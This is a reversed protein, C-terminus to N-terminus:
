TEDDFIEKGFFCTLLLELDNNDTYEFEIKKVRGKESIHVPRGIRNRIKKELAIRYDVSIVRSPVPPIDKKLNISKALAETQRVSLGKEIVTNAASIMKKRDKIALLARAHGASLKTQKVLALLEDPLDLLRMTNAVASRSKSVREALEEQTLGYQDILEMYASAEEIPDLDQRQINEILSLEATKKDDAEIIIVPIEILNAMKAARWRREGAIIEYLGAGAARVIIPQIVGHKKISESLEILSEDEFTKRPQKSRPQIESIKLETFPSDKQEADNDYMLDLYGKGLGTNKSKGM